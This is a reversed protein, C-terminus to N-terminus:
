SKAAVSWIGLSAVPIAVFFCLWGYGLTGVLV